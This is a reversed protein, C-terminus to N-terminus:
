HCVWLCIQNLLFPGACCLLSAPERHWGGPGQLLWWGQFPGFAQPHLVHACPKITLMTSTSPQCLSRTNKSTKGLVLWETFREIGGSKAGKKYHMTDMIDQKWDVSINSKAIPIYSFPSTHIYIHTCVHTYTYLYLWVCTSTGSCFESIWEFRLCRKWYKFEGGLMAKLFWLPIIFWLETVAAGKPEAAARLSAFGEAGMAFDPLTKTSHKCHLELRQSFECNGQLEQNRGSSVLHSDLLVCPRHETGAEKGVPSCGWGQSPLVPCVWGCVGQAGSGRPQAM